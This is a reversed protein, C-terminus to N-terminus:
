PLVGLEVLLRDLAAKSDPTLPAEGLGGFGVHVNAVERGDRLFQLTTTSICFHAAGVEEESFQLAAALAQIRKPERTIERHRWGKADRPTTLTQSETDWALTPSAEYRVLVLCDATAMAQQLARWHAVTSKAWSPRPQVFRSGLTPKGEYSPRTRQLRQVATQVLRLLDATPDTQENEVTIDVQIGGAHVQIQAHAEESTEDEPTHASWALLPAIAEQMLENTLAEQKVWSKQVAGCLQIVTGGRYFHVEEAAWHAALILEHDNAAALARFPWCLGGVLMAGHLHMKRWSFLPLFVGIAPIYRTHAIVNRVALTGCSFKKSWLRRASRTHRGSEKASKPTVGPGLIM